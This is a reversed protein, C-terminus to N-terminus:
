RRQVVVADATVTVRLDPLSDLFAAFTEVDHAGFAGTVPLAGAMPGQIRIQVRNYRNFEQAVAALPENEFVIEERTWAAAKHPDVRSRSRLSGSRSVQAREGPGLEVLPAQGKRARVSTGVPAGWIRVQGEMVTVTTDGAPQRYVDFVTGIDEILHAGVQVEFPRAPHDAVDFLAQGREVEAQRRKRGFSLTVASDSNLRLRSGDPLPWEGQEGRQTAYRHTEPRDAMWPLAVVVVALALAAAMGTGWGLRRRRSSARLGRRTAAFAAPGTGSVSAAPGASARDAGGTRARAPPRVDSGHLETVGADVRDQALLAELATPDRRAAAPLDEAMAVVALYEAVHRPSAQLWRMFARAQEPALAGERQAAYWQAAEEALLAGIRRTAGTREGERESDKESM